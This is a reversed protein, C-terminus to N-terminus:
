IEETKFSLPLDGTHDDKHFTFASRCGSSDSPEGSVAQSMRTNGIYGIDDIGLSFDPPMINSMPAAKWSFGDLNMNFTFASPHVNDLNATDPTRPEMDEEAFVTPVATVAAANDVGERARRQAIWEQTGGQLAATLTRRLLADVDPSVDNSDSPVVAFGRSQLFSLVIRPGEVELYSALDFAQVHIDDCLDFTCTRPRAVGPFILDWISYWQSTIDVEKDVRKTLTNALTNSLGEPLPASSEECPNTRAQVIHDDGKKLRSHRNAFLAIIQTECIVDGSTNSSKRSQQLDRKGYGALLRISQFGTRSTVPWDLRDM